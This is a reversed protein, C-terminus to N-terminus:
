FLKQENTILKLYSSLSLPKFRLKRLQHKKETYLYKNPTFTKKFLHPIKCLEIYIGYSDLVWKQNIVFLRTMNNQDFDAKVEMVTYYEDTKHDYNALFPVNKNNVVSKRDEIMIGYAKSTWYIIFDTTYEHANILSRTEIKAAMTKRPIAVSYTKAESLFYPPPHHIYRDIYGAEILEDMWAIFYKEEDSDPKSEDEKLQPMKIGESLSVPVKTDQITDVILDFPINATGSTKM